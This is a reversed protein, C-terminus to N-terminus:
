APQQVSCGTGATIPTADEIVFENAVADFSVFVDNTEGPNAAFRLTTGDISATGALAGAPAVLCLAGIVCVALLVRRSM